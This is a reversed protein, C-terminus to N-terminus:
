TTPEFGTKPSIRKRDESFSRSNQYPRWSIDMSRSLDLTFSGTDYAIYFFDTYVLLHDISFARSDSVYNFISGPLPPPM